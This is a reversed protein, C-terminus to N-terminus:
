VTAKATTTAVIVVVISAQVGTLSVTTALALCVLIPKPIMYNTWPNLYREEKIMKHEGIEPCFTLDIKSLRPGTVPM